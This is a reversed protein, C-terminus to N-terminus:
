AASTEKHMMLRPIIPQENSGRKRLGRAYGGTVWTGDMKIVEFEDKHDPYVLIDGEKVLHGLSTVLKGCNHNRWCNARGKGHRGFFQHCGECTVGQEVPLSTHCTECLAYEAEDGLIYGTPIGHGILEAEVQRAPRPHELLKQVLQHIEEDRTVGDAAAFRDIIDCEDAPIIEEPVKKGTRRLYDGFTQDAM